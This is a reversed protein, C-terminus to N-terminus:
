GRSVLECEAAKLLVKAGEILGRLQGNDLWAVESATMAEDGVIAHRMARDTVALLGGSAM